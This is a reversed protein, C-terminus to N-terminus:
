DPRDTNSVQILTSAFDMALGDHAAFLVFYLGAQDYDPRWSFNGNEFEAGQPLGYASYEIDDGDPDTANITFSLEANESVVKAGISALVPPRNTNNVQILMYALDIALGDRAMFLVYYHGAQEYDPRWFFTGNEFEAGRPLGYAIYGIEDGDPDTASITFSLEANESVERAAMPALVPPRNTNNVHIRIFALDIALGDRVVFLVYYVGAQEYDPRWFFTGNEFEAARPIGYANYEIEDGDPDTASITFSLEANESIEKDGIPALIPGRNSNFVWITVTESSSLRGDDAIFTVQCLEASDQAAFDYSPTWRFVGNEFVAGNPLNQVTYIVDDGDPDEAEVVFSLEENETVTQSVLSELVPARNIDGYSYTLLSQNPDGEFSNVTLQLSIGRFSFDDASNPDFGIGFPTSNGVYDILELLSSSYSVDSSDALRFNFPYDFIDWVWSNEENIQSFTIVLDGNVLEYSYGSLLGGFDQFFDGSDRDENTIFGLPPNDVIHMHLNNDWNTIGHITLLVETIISGEAISVDDSSIGWTYYKDARLEIGLASVHAGIAAALMAALAFVTIARREM